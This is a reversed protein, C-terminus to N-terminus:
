KHLQWILGGRWFFSDHFEVIVDVAPNWGFLVQCAYIYPAYFIQLPQVEFSALQRLRGLLTPVDRHSNLEIWISM